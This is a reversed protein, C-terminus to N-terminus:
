ADDSITSLAADLLRDVYEPDLAEGGVQEEAAM